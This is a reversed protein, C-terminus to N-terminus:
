RLDSNGLADVMSELEDSDVNETLASIILNSMSEVTPSEFLERLPLEVKFISRVRAVLQTALLSHGGLEFFHDHMGVKDVRLVEAWLDAVQQELDDRPAVYARLEARSDPAPLAKRDVKANSTLPFSDLRVLASPVMYEPLRQQLHSRLAGLDLSADAALYGVLRKDGPVDERALAVAERVGPFALLTAEVEALEIRFGRVKVQFDTRGLFELVGDHRWRALDGTRYMRAGPTPSFPNPVFREATQAPNHVYGRALGEGGIFLEGPVGVPVPQGHPDLLYVQTGTIPTGIPISAPVQEPSSMRFCSTFLTGETPGYCATVPIGLEELVRRVHPASVVDGGTLLQKVSKLSELHTEVVQSFLGSTLHLTSVSHRQLVSALTDLDSPSTPPFVVLRGGNLLPGWVELTSADFSIPAILLFSQSASVDAYPADCVTRLVNRHSVAVGKPRGTSGSTFDIYALHQPSLAVAPSHVPLSSSDVEDVFLLPLSDSAPLSAKLASHTLLLVPQADEVMQALREPPYSTDLPLYAGGAKLIALLSVILEVSRELALAVPADPRVGRAILLHALQNSRADLQSYTLRQEAFELAISDPHQAVVRSFAEAMTSDRPFAAPARNFDVLVTRREDESLLPLRHLALRPQALLTELFRVYYRAMREATAPLFLDANYILQGSFGDPSEALNLELEFRATTSARTLPQLTLDAGSPISVPANQLAFFVQFIPSRDLARGSALSEVLKEFPLDQHAHAGLTEVNLRSLLEEFSPNDEVRARLALTNVFFGILGELEAFRRGAIPSGVIFDAQGCYRALFAQFAGLLAMFPTAGRQQCFAKLTGSLARSLQVPVSAGRFTQVAPRPFDTPLELMQPAGALQLRWYDLQAELAEGHLWSRQWVAYDAYQVPLAPLPSPRGQRFDEYSAAVERVLVGMSWGDSAIHHMTLLLLHERESMRLLVARMLPGHELDFPLASQEAYHQDARAERDEPSLASLDVQTFPCEGAEAISQIPGDPESRFSTRLVEHRQVLAQLARGLAAADLQGELRVAFPLNYSTNGPQLQDFFWLRQQAFSLPLPQQRSVPALPPVRSTRAAGQGLREALSAVTPAAFMEGLPLEVGLTARIRSVVQTALLSHGGLEFFNDHIGVREMRLVQAWIDALKGETDNRPAVYERTRATAEADPEPLAKRDLKGSPSLPFSELMVFVSPVMYEPLTARLADRLMGTDVGGEEGPVVYAVLRKDGALDERALVVAHRVSPQAALAAEIEGLEIRLGRVKVQFDLRGQYDLTGDPLWRALDGTRYMRAGATASFPDPVFREATLEPRQLYGRGVQVGAIYLEGSVGVPAPSLTGDLVYLQTNAVPRGIPVSAREDDTLCAWYTVDVAAETPGYLNHLGAGPLRELCQRALEAPLAEGSCIIRRVSTCAQELGPEQLFAQLMSPVFHLTSVRQAAILGALYAPDQHGGPRALVLRAGTMLPWFFEWVSVDFSFPTKQLVTDAATLGYEQQMWLLRNVIGSHANMAGKPRGTSGSTFIVYALADPGALPVPRTIPQRAVTEGDRDLCVVHASHSPLVELLREQTLLVPASADELMWALRERPYAPDLPVYAGGAKLVGVLAVVLELSRELCVGVRSEPGVGLWRLHHALQNARADLQAYTLASDEFRVAEAEPTREVQAEILSHLSVDRPYAEDPGRFDVLLQRQEGATLLPLEALRLDPNAALEGLLTYFHGRLRQITATDFLDTNYELWGFIEDPRDERLELLLDFKASGPDVLLYTSQLGPMSLDQRPTNQFSFMVQFLPHRSRDRPPRLEEVLKEFPLEQHAYAAMCVTKARRLLERFTPNGELDGRLVLTNVFFGILSELEPVNRGAIPSGIAFDTQGSHRHMLTQFAAMLTMFLTAGEQQSVEKLARTLAVPLTVFQRSGRYTQVPPRPRDTPLELPAPLTRLQQKWFDLEARLREGQMRERQWVAFDSYQISLEPLEAPQGAVEAAYLAMLERVFVGLSWRDTVLHHMTVLAVHNDPGLRLVKGRLLPGRALDFTRRSEESTLREVETDQAEKPLHSVDEVPIHLHLDPLVVQVPMGDDRAAFVTRLSEHRAVVGNVCRELLAIDLVGTFQVTIHVNYAFARGGELQDVVWLRQQPFSTPAPGTDDRRPITRALTKQTTAQLQGKKEKLLLEYLARQKPTLKDLHSRSASM